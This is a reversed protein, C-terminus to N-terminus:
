PNSGSDQVIVRFGQDLLARVLTPLLKIGRKNRQHGIFGIRRVRNGHNKKPAGDHPCPLSHMHMAPWLRTHADCLSPAYAGLQIPYDCTTLTHVARAWAATGAPVPKQPLWWCGGLQRVAHRQSLAAALQYPALTPWFWLDSATVQRLDAATQAILK